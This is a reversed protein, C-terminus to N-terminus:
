NHILTGSGLETFLEAASFFEVHIQARSLEEPGAVGVHGIIAGAEVTDDLPVVKGSRYGTKWMESKGLWDAPKAASTENALHMYFAAVLAAKTGALMILMGGIAIRSLPMYIVGLELGTLVTLWVFVQIYRRKEHAIRGTTATSAAAPMTSATM